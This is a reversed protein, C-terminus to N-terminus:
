VEALPLEIFFITGKGEQSEFWIQGGSQEIGHKAIALGIGSGESKTSFSPLFIKDKIDEKIGPGNDEISILARKGSIAVKGQININQGGLAQTANLIINTIIRGMLKIDGIVYINDETHAFEIKANEVNRHLNFTKTLVETLDFKKMEPIPMKAFASFSTAIDRLTDVQHLLTNIPKEVDRSEMTSKGSIRRQLQQLTLKMPTLPNKIEHAVQKAIERWALEKQTRTLVEKSAELNKIMRNYEGVLLGIEDQTDWEIPPNYGTLSTKTLKEAIMKLPVVLRKSVFYSIILLTLFLLSFINLINTLVGIQQSELISKFDFFPLGLVGVLKGTNLTKVPVYTVNYKLDGIIAEKLLYNVSNNVIDQRAQHDVYKSTLGKEFIKPQTSVILGGSLNYLDADTSLISAANRLKEALLDRNEIPDFQFNDLERQINEAIDYGKQRNQDEVEKRSQTSLLSLTTVSVLILPLIFALNLYLQIKSAFGRVPSNESQIIIILTFVLGVLLVLSLFFFSFNSLTEGITHSKSSVVLTRKDADLALHFNGNINRGRTYIREYDLEGVPFDNQYNYDGVSNLLDQGSYVAYSVKLDGPARYNRSDILLEPYVDNSAVRKQDFDILIYGIRSNLRQIEIFAYYKKFMDSKFDRTRYLGDFETKNEVVANRNYAIQYDISIQNSNLPNANQNYLYIQIDYRDLYPDLYIQNIKRSIIDKSVFPSSLWNGIFPDERVKAIAEAMLFEGFIDADLLQENGFRRIEVADRKQELQTISYAGILSSLILSGSLYLLALYNVRLFHQHIRSQGLLILYLVLISILFLIPFKNELLIFVGIGAILSFGMNWFDAATAVIWVRFLFHFLFFVTFANTLFVILCALREYSISLSHNVDLGIQSNDYIDRFVLFHITLIYLLCVVSILSLLMRFPLGLKRIKFTLLSGEMLRTTFYSIGLMLFSLLILDFLNNLILSSAYIRSDFIPVAEWYGIISSTKFLSYLFAWILLFWLFYGSKNAETNKNIGAVKSKFLFAFGLLIFLFALYKVGILPSSYGDGLDIKFLPTAKYNLTQPGEQGLTLITFQSNFFIKENWKKRIYKNSLDPNYVLPIIVVIHILGPDQTSSIIRKRVITKWGAKEFYDILSLKEIEKFLPVLSNESWYILEANHYILIPYKSEINQSSIEVISVSQIQTSVSELITEGDELENIVNEEIQKYYDKSKEGFQPIILILLGAVVLVIGVPFYNLKFKVLM